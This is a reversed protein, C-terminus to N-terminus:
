LSLGSGEMLCGAETNRQNELAPQKLAGFLDMSNSGRPRQAILFVGDPDKLGPRSFHRRRENRLQCQALRFKQSM